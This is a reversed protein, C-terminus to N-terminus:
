SKILRARIRRREGRGFVGDSNAAIYCRVNDATCHGDDRPALQHFFSLTISISVRVGSSNREAGNRSGDINRQVFHSCKASIGVSLGTTSETSHTQATIQGQADQHPAAIAIHAIQHTTILGVGVAVAGRGDGDAGAPPPEEEEETSAAVSSTGASADTDLFSVNFIFAQPKCHGPGIMCTFFAISLMATPSRHPSQPLRRRNQVRHEAQHSVVSIFQYLLM